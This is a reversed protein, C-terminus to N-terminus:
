VHRGRIGHSISQRGTVIEFTTYWSGLASMLWSRDISNHSGEFLIHGLYPPGLQFWVGLLLLDRSRLAAGTALTAMASVNALFHVWRNAPAAHDALYTTGYFALFRHFFTRLM